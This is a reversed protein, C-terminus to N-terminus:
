PPSRVGGLGGKSSDCNRPALRPDRPAEPPSGLPTKTSMGPGGEPVPPGGM